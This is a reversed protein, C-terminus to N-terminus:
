QRLSSVKCSFKEWIVEYRNKLFTTKWKVTFLQWRSESQDGNESRQRMVNNWRPLILMLASRLDSHNKNKSKSVKCLWFLKPSLVACFEIVNRSNEMAAILYVHHYFPELIGIGFSVIFVHWDIRCSQSNWSWGFIIIIHLMENWFVSQAFSILIVYQEMERQMADATATRKFFRSKRNPLLRGLSTTNLESFSFLVLWSATPFLLFIEVSHNKELIAVRFGTYYILHKCCTMVPLWSGDWSDNNSDSHGLESFVINEM